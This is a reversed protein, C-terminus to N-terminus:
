RRPPDAEVARRRPRRRSPRTRTRRRRTRRIEAPVRRARARGAASRRRRRSRGAPGRGQVVRDGRQLLHLQQPDRRQRAEAARPRLARAAGERRRVRRAARLRRLVRRRRRAEAPVRGSQRVRHGVALQRREAQVDIRDAHITSRARRSSRRQGDLAGTKRRTTSTAAHRGLLQDAQGTPRRRARAPSALALAAAARAARAVRSAIRTRM